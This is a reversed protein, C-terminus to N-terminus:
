RLGGRGTVPSNKKSESKSGSERQRKGTFPDDTPKQPQETIVVAVEHSVAQKDVVEPEVRSDTEPIEFDYPKQVETSVAWQKMSQEKTARESTDEQSHVAGEPLSPFLPQRANKIHCGGPRSRQIEDTSSVEPM